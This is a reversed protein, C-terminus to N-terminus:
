LLKEGFEGVAPVAGDADVGRRGRDRVPHSRDQGEPRRAGLHFSSSLVMTLAACASKWWGGGREM